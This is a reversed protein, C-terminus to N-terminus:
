AGGGASGKLSQLQSNLEARRREADALQDPTPDPRPAFGPTPATTQDPPSGGRGIRSALERRDYAPAPEGPALYRWKGEAVKPTELDHFGPRRDWLDSSLSPDWLEPRARLDDHQRAREGQLLEPDNEKRWRGAPCRCFLVVVFARPLGFWVAHRRAWGTGSCEPCARSAAEVERPPAFQAPAPPPSVRERMVRDVQRRLAPWHDRHSRPPDHMLRESAATFARADAGLRGLEKAWPAFFLAGAETAPDPLRAFPHRATHERFLANWELPKM